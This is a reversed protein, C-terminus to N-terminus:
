HVEFPLIQSMDRIQQMPCSVWWESIHDKAELEYVYIYSWAVTFCFLSLESASSSLNPIYHLISIGLIILHIFTIQPIQYNKDPQGLQEM